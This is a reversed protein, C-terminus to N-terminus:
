SKHETRTKLTAAEAELKAAAKLFKRSSMGRAALERLNAASRILSSRKQEMREHETPEHRFCSGDGFLAQALRKEAAKRARKSMRGNPSSLAIADSMTDATRIPTMKM